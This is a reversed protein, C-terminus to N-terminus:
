ASAAGGGEGTAVGNRLLLALGRVKEAAAWQEKAKSMAAAHKEKLVEVRKSFRREADQVQDALTECQKSLEEKDSLLQDIFGLHREIDADFKGKQEELARQRERAAEQAEKRRTERQRELQDRLLTITRAKDKVDVRLEMMKARVDEYVASALAPAEPESGRGSGSNVPSHHESVANRGRSRREHPASRRPSAESEAAGTGNGAAAEPTGPWAQQEAEDM